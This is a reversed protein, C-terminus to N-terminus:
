DAWARPLCAMTLLPSNWSGLSSHIVRCPVVRVVQALLGDVNAECEHLGEQRLQKQGTRLRKEQHFLLGELQHSTGEGAERTLLGRYDKATPVGAQCWSPVHPFASMSPVLSHGSPLASQPFLFSQPFDTALSDGSLWAWSVVSSFATLDM